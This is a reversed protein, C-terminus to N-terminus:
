AKGKGSKAKATSTAKTKTKSKSGSKAQTSSSQAQSNLTIAQTLAQAEPSLTAKAFDEIEETISKHATNVVTLYDIKRNAIQDFLEELASTYAYETFSFGGDLVCVIASGASTPELRLSKADRTVYAKNVITEIISAYTSPRGIGLKELMEVLTKENYFAPPKTQKTLLEVTEPQLQLSEQIIPLQQNEQTNEGGTKEADESNDQEADESHKGGHTNKNLTVLNRASRWGAKKQVKGKSVFADQHPNKWTIITQEDEADALQSELTIQWIAHYVAETLPDGAYIQTMGIDTVRLCEHGEQANDKAKYERAKAPLPLQHGAAFARIKAVFDPAMMPSDTRHYTILGQEFLKQAVSMANKTTLKFRGSVMKLYSSTTLPKPPAESVARKVVSVAWLVSTRNKVDEAQAKVTVLASRGTDGPPQWFALFGVAGHRLKAVVAYHEVPKFNRIETSREVVLKVAVTQVRGASLYPIGAKVKRLKDSLVPSVLYGVYRDIVRRAEQARVLSWDINRKKTLAETIAKQSVEVYTIRSTRTKYKDGLCNAVHAAIAEGERDPDTALIITDADKAAARLKIEVETKDHMTVYEPKHTIEDVGLRDVPLDRFHGVTAVVTFEPFYKKISKAKNPSEVVFLTKSM